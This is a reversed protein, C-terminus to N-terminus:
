KKLSEEQESLEAWRDTLEEEERRLEDLRLSLEAAKEYDSANEPESLLANIRATEEAIQQSREEARLIATRLKRLESERQKKLKYPNEKEVPKEQVPRPQAYKM